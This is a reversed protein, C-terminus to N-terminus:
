LNLGWKVEEVLTDKDYLQFHIDWYGEMTFFVESLEYIGEGFNEVHIPFSGHGMSPMWLMVKLEYATETPRGDEDTLVLLVKSEKSIQPGLRWFKKLKLQSKSFIVESHSSDIKQNKSYKDNKDDNKSKNLFPSDGCGWLFLVGFIIPPVSLKKIFLM